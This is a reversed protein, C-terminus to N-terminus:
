GSSIRCTEAMAHVPQSLAFYSLAELYLQKKSSRSKIGTCCCLLLLLLAYCSFLLSKMWAHQTHPSSIFRKRARRRMLLM